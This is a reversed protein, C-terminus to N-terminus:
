YFFVKFYNFQFFPLLSLFQFKLFLKVSFNLNAERLTHLHIFFKNICHISTHHLAKKFSSKILYILHIVQKMSYLVFVKLLLNDQM